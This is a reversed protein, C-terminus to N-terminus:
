PLLSNGGSSSSAKVSGDGFPKVSKVKNQVVPDSEDDKKYSERVVKAIVKSGCVDEPEFEFESSALQEETFLGTAALLGKLGFLAQPKLSTIYWFNRNANAHDEVVTLTWNFYQGDGAKNDKLEVETIYVPYDGGPLAEFDKVEVNSFDTKFGM